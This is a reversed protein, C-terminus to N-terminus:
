HARKDRLHPFFAAAGMVIVTHWGRRVPLWRFWQDPSLLLRRSGLRHIIGRVVVAVVRANILTTRSLVSAMSVPYTANATPIINSDLFFALCEIIAYLYFFMVIEKRGLAFDIISESQKVAHLLVSKGVATYKSRIHYIM